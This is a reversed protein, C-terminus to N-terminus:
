SAPRERRTELVMLSSSLLVNALFAVLIALGALMGFNFTSKM